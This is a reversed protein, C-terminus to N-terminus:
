FTEMRTNLLDNAFGRVLLAELSDIVSHEVEYASAYTAVEHLLVPRERPQRRKEDSPRFRVSRKPHKVRYLSQGERRRNLVYNMENWLSTRKAKGAYLARGRSDYFIYVGHAQRLADRLERLYRSQEEDFPFLRYKVGQGGKSLTVNLPLFEVIPKIMERRSEEVAARRASAVINAVQRSTINRKQIRWGRVVMGSVGLKSKLEKATETRFKRKLADLLESGRM